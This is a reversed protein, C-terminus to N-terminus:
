ERKVSKDVTALDELTFDSQVIQKILFRDLQAPITIQEFIAKGIVQGTLKYLELNESSDPLKPNMKYIIEQTETKM